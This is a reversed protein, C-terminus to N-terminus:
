DSMSQLRWFLLIQLYRLCFQRAHLMLTALQPMSLIIKNASVRFALDAHSVSLTITRTFVPVVLDAHTDIFNGHRSVRSCGSRWAVSVFIFMSTSMRVALGALSVVSSSCNMRLFLIFFKLLFIYIAVLLRLTSIHLCTISCSPM